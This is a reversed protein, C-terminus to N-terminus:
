DYIERKGLVQEVYALVKPDTEHEGCIAGVACLMDDFSRSSELLKIVEPGEFWQQIIDDDTELEKKITAILHGRDYDGIKEWVGDIKEIPNICIRALLTQLMSFVPPNQVVFRYHGQSDYAEYQEWFRHIVALRTSVLAKSKSAIMPGGADLIIFKADM